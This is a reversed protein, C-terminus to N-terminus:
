FCTVDDLSDEYNKSFANQSMAAVCSRLRLLFPLATFGLPGSSVQLNQLTLWKRAMESSVGGDVLDEPPIITAGQKYDAM